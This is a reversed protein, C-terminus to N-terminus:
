GLNLSQLTPEDIVATATLGQDAQYATLAERTLPGLLGDVEGRYYGMQQLEAQVDAIVRDPPEARHGVYIPADYAYYENGSDYGWAPYWYGNNWYYYGGGILEVRNYRSSYWGRDHREPHYSRYVEYQPGQWRDSGQIRYSQNFTVAPVRDPRPQARFNVHQQKIQQAQQKVQQVKQPDAKVAANGGTTQQGAAAISPAASASAAVSPAASASAAVSPAASASAATAPTASASTKANVGGAKMGKERQGAQHKAGPTASATPQSSVDTGTGASTASKESAKVKHGKGTGPETTVGGSTQGSVGTETGTATTSKEGKAKHGKGTGPETTAGVTAEPKAANVGSKTEAAHTKPTKPEAQQTKEAKKGPGPTSQEEPQAFAAGALALSVGILLSTFKKM